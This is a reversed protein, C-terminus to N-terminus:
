HSSILKHLCKAVRAATHQKRMNKRTLRELNPQEDYGNLQLRLRARVRIRNTDINTWYSKIMHNFIVCWMLGFEHMTSIWFIISHLILFVSGSSIYISSHTKTRATQTRSATFMQYILLAVFHELFRSVFFSPSSFIRSASSLNNCFLQLLPLCFFLYRLSLLLPKFVNSIGKLAFCPEIKLTSMINPHKICM